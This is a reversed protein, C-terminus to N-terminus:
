DAMLRRIQWDAFRRIQSKGHRRVVKGPRAATMAKGDFVVQGNVIVSSFGEAYSHPKEFTATDRVRDPDFVVIDAKMGPKLIGRDNVRIRQAPFSTMKRIADQLTIVNKERVYVGLVRPFTGYSRPHPVGRGFIQVWGDSAIMTAPHRMVRELDQEAMAHFVGQCNGQEVIWLASDAANELTVELNRMKTVDALNKGAMSADFDCSALFVNKPDGGGREEKIIRVTETAIEKRQAPNKLRALMPERGGEQAWQPVM